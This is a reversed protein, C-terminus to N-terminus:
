RPDEREAAGLHPFAGAVLAVEEDTAGLHRLLLRAQNWTSEHSGREEPAMAVAQAYLRAAPAYRGRILELEAVTATQWYDDRTAETGVLEQVRDAFAEAIELEDLFVSKTAANIGSYWNSRDNEFAQAYLDRSRRLHNRDGGDRYRDMWTRALIGLTEPDQEGLARLEELELQARRWDGSRALALGTLQRVRLSRPFRAELQDLLALAERYANLRILGEAARCGLSPGTHWAVSDSRALELLRDAAGAAVAAEIRAEAQRAEEDVQAAFTVASPPLAEGRLGYLLRLLGDGTPGSRLERFDTRISDRVFPPLEADDLRTVVFHFSPNEVALAQFAHYEKRCWESDAADTSYVLVGSASSALHTELAGILSVGAPLVYQDMFVEYGLGRLVDYLQLVWPRDVSRYSLFVHWRRGPSLDPPQPAHELWQRLANM